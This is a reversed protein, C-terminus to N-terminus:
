PALIRSLRFATVNLRSRPAFGERSASRLVQPNDFWAGGRLVRLSENGKVWPSGDSPAGEYSRYFSDEVWEWANGSMDHLGFVNPEFAGIPATFTYGDRCDAGGEKGIVERADVDYGNVFQCQTEKESSWYHAEATGARAAFEWGAEAPLHYDRGTQESLWRAYAKADNWNVCVVPHDDGQEFGPDRWSKDADLDWSRSKENWTHCGDGEGTHGTADVFARYQTVTVEFKGIAFAELDVQHQPGEDDNRGEEEAPSGMVFSAAPLAVMRPCFPCPRGDILSDTFEVLEASRTTLVIQEEIPGVNYPFVALGLALLLSLAGLLISRWDILPALRDGLRRRAWSDLRLDLKGPRHGLMFQRYLVDYQRSEPPRSRLFGRFIRRWSAKPKIFDPADLPIDPQEVANYVVEEITERVKPELTKDLKELLALRVDEPMRGERFWPLRAVHVFEKEGPSQREFM